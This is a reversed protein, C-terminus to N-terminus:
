YQDQLLAKRGFSENRSKKLKRARSGTLLFRIQREEILLHVEDLLEPCKQIEDICIICHKLNRAEIEQLLITPDALISLLLKRDLLNYILAPPPDLQEKIYTSKGSQRLGLLFLSREDLLKNIDLFRSLYM